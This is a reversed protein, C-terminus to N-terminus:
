RITNLTKYLINNGDGTFNGEIQLYKTEGPVLDFFNDSLKLEESETYLYIGSTFVNTKVT